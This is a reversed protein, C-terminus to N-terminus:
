ALGEKEMKSITLFILATFVVLIVAGTASLNFRSATEVLTSITVYVARGARLVWGFRSFITTFVSPFLWYLAVTMWIATYGSWGVVLWFIRQWSLRPKLKSMVKSTFDPSPDAAYWDAALLRELEQDSPLLLDMCAMCNQLHYEILISNPAPLSGSLYDDLQRKIDECKM